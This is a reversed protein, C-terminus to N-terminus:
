LVFEFQNFIPASDEVWTRGDRSDSGIIHKDLPCMEMSVLQNDNHIIKLSEDLLRKAIVSCYVSVILFNNFSEIGYCKQPFDNFERSQAEHKPFIVDINGDKHASNFYSYGIPDATAKDTFSSISQNYLARLEPGPYVLNDRVLNQATQIVIHSPSAGFMFNDISFHYDYSFTTSFFNYTNIISDPVKEFVYNIDAYVGGLCSILDYRLTDSVVGWHKLNTHEQVLDYNPLFERIDSIEKVEVDVDRLAEVSEALSSKSNVWIIQKWEHAESTKLLANTKKVNEIDQGRIQRPNNIDTIWIHHLIPPIVTDEQEKANLNRYKYDILQQPNENFYKEEGVFSESKQQEGFEFEEEFINEMISCDVEWLLPELIKVKEPKFSLLFQQKKKDSFLHGYKDSFDSLYERSQESSLEEISINNIVQIMKGIFKQINSHSTCIKDQLGMLLNFSTEYSKLVINADAGNEICHHILKDKLEKDFYKRLIDTLFQDLKEQSLFHVATKVCNMATEHDSHYLHELLKSTFDEMNTADVYKSLLDLDDLNRSHKFINKTEAGNEVALAVLESVKQKEDESKYETPLKLITQLFQDASDEKLIGQRFRYFETLHFGSEFASKSLVFSLNGGAEVAQEIISIGDEHSSSFRWIDIYKKLFVDVIEPQLLAPLFVKVVRNVNWSSVDFFEGIAAGHRLLYKVNELEQENLESPEHNNKSSIMRGLLGDYYVKSL